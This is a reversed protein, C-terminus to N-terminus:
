KDKANSKVKLCFNQIKSDFGKLNDKASAANKDNRCTKCESSYGTKSNTNGHFQNWVKYEECVSCERGEDDIIFQSHNMNLKVEKNKNQLNRM